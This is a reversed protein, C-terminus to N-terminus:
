FAVPKSVFFGDLQSHVKSFPAFYTAKYQRAKFAPGLGFCLAEPLRDVIATTILTVRCIYKVLCDSGSM